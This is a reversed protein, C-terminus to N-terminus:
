RLNRELNVKITAQDTVEVRREFRRVGDDLEVEFLMEYMGPDLQAEFSPARTVGREGYSREFVLASQDQGQAFMDVRVHRVREAAAGFDLAMEVQAIESSCTRTALVLLAVLFAV